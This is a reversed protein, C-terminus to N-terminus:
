GGRSCRRGPSGPDCRRDLGDAPGSGDSRPSSSASRPPSSRASVPQARIRRSGSRTRDPRRPRGAARIAVPDNAQHDILGQASTMAEDETSSQCLLNHVSFLSSDLRVNRVTTREVCPVFLRLASGATGVGLLIASVIRISSESAQPPPPAGPADRGRDGADLGVQHSALLREGLALDALRQAQAVAGRAEGQGLGFRPPDDLADGLRAADTAAPRGPGGIERDAVVPLPEPPHDGLPLHALAVRDDGDELRLAARPRGRAATGAPATTVPPPTARAVQTPPPAVSPARSPIPTPSAGARPPPIITVEEEVPVEATQPPVSRRAAGRGDPRSRVAGPRDHDADRHGARARGSRPEADVLRGRGRRRRGRASGGILLGIPAGKRAPPAMERTKPPIRPSAAVRRRRPRPRPLRRRAVSAGPRAPAGARSRTHAIDPTAADCPPRPPRARSLCPKPNEPRPRPCSCASAGTRPPPAAITAGPDFSSVTAAAGGDVARRRRVHDAWRRTGDWEPPPLRSSRM